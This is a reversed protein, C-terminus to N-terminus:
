MKADLELIGPVMSVAQPHRATEFMVFHLAEARDVFMGGHQGSQDRVVWHGNRDKGILWSCRQSSAPAVQIMVLEQPNRRPM